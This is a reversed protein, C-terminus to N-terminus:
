RCQMIENLSLRRPARISYVNRNVQEFLRLKWGYAKVCSFTSVHIEYAGFGFKARLMATLKAPNINRGSVDQFEIGSDSADSDHDDNSSAFSAKRTAHGESTSPPSSMELIIIVFLAFLAFLANKNNVNVLKSIGRFVFLLPFDPSSRYSMLPLAQGPEGASMGFSPLLHHHSWDFQYRTSDRCRALRLLQVGDCTRLGRGPVLGLASNSACLSNNVSNHRNSAQPTSNSHLPQM